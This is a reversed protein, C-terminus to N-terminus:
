RAPQKRIKSWRRRSNLRAAEARAEDQTVLPMQVALEGWANRRFTDIVNWSHPETTSPVARYRTKM